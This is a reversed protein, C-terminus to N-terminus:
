ARIANAFAGSSSRTHASKSCCSMVHLARERARKHQNVGTMFSIGMASSKEHVGCSTRIDSAPLTFCGAIASSVRPSHGLRSSETHIKQWLQFIGEAFHSKAWTSFETGFTVVAGLVIGIPSSQGLFLVSVSLQKLPHVWLWSRKFLTQPQFSSIGPDIRM